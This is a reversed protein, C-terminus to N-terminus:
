SGIAKNLFGLLLLMAIFLGITWLRKVKKLEMAVFLGIVVALLIGALTNSLFASISNNGSVVFHYFGQYLLEAITSIVLTALVLSFLPTSPNQKLLQKQFFIAVVTIVVLFLLGYVNIATDMLSIRHPINFGSYDVLYLVAFLSLALLVSFSIYLKSHKM